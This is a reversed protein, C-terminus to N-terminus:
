YLREKFISIEDSSVTSPIQLNSPDFQPNRGGISHGYVHYHKNEFTNKFKGM